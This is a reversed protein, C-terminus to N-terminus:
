VRGGEVFFGRVGLAVLALPVLLQLDVGGTTTRVSRDVGHFFDNVAGATLPAPTDSVQEPTASLRRAVPEAHLRAAVAGLARAIAPISDQWRRGHEHVLVVSGTVPSAEVRSVGPIRAFRTELQRAFSPEGKLRDIRLRVRGPIAHAVHIGHAAPSM